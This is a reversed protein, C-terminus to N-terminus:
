RRRNWIALLTDLADEVSQLRQLDREQAEERRAGIEQLRSSISATFLDVTEAIGRSEDKLLDSLGVTDSKEREASRYVEYNDDDNAFNKM